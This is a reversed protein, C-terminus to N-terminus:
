VSAVTTCRQWTACLEQELRDLGDGSLSQPAVNIEINFKSLEPVVTALALRRLYAENIALPAGDAGILWAELELGGVAHHKSLRDEAFWSHLVAMERELAAAYRHFDHARFHLSNIEQGM